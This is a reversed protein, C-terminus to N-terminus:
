RSRLRRVKGGCHSVRKQRQRQESEACSCSECRGIVALKEQMLKKLLDQDGVRDAAAIAMRLDTQRKGLSRRELTLLAHKVQLWWRTARSMARSMCRLRGAPSKSPGDTAADMSQGPASANALTEMLGASPLSAYWEPHAGLEM